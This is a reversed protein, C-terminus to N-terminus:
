QKEGKLKGKWPIFIVDKKDSRIQRACWGGIHNTDSCGKYSEKFMCGECAGSKSPVVQLLGMGSVYFVENIKREAKM